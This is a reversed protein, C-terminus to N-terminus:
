ENGQLEGLVNTQYFYKNRINVLPSLDTQPTWRRVIEEVPVDVLEPSTSFLDLKSPFSIIVRVQAFERCQLSVPYFNIEVKKDGYGDEDDDVKCAKQILEILKLYNCNLKSRYIIYDVM